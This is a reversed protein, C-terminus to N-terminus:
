IKKNPFKKDIELIKKYYDDYSSSFKRILPIAIEYYNNDILYQKLKENVVNVINTKYEESNIYIEYERIIEINENFWEEFNNVAKIKDINVKNLDDSDFSKVIDEIYKEEDNNLIFPPLSDIFSIYSNFAEEDDIPENLFPKYASFLCQGFYGPFCNMLRTYLNEQKEIINLEKNIKELEDGLIVKKLLARKKNEIEMKIQMNRVYNSDLKVDNDLLKKIDTISIGLKRFINIKYLTNIDNESYERYGNNEKLPRILNKEEYYEIAKRTIGILKEVQSRKM